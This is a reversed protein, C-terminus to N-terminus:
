RQEKAYNVGAEFAKKNIEIMEPKKGFRDMIVKQMIDVPVFGTFAAFFGLMVVNSAKASGCDEAIAIAPIGMVRGCLTEAPEQIVSTNLVLCSDPLLRAKAEDVADQNLAIVFDVKQKSPSAIEEDSIMVTCTSNGGRMAGGYSPLFTVHYGAENAAYTLMKGITQVGQGGIGGIVLSKLM